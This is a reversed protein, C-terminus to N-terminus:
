PARYLTCALCTDVHVATPYLSDRKKCYIPAPDNPDACITVCHRCPSILATTLRHITKRIDNIDDGLLKEPISRLPQAKMNDDKSLYM